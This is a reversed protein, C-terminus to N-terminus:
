NKSHCGELKPTDLTPISSTASSNAPSPSVPSSSDTSTSHTSPSHQIHHHTHNHNRSPLPLPPLLIEHYLCHLSTPLNPCVISTSWFLSSFKMQLLATKSHGYCYQVFLDKTVSGFSGPIDHTFRECKSIRVLYSEISISPVNRAHFCLTANPIALATAASTLISGSSETYSHSYPSHPLPHQQQLPQQHHQQQQHHSQKHPSPRAPASFTHRPGDNTSYSSPPPAATDAVTPMPFPYEDSQTEKTDITPSNSPAASTNPLTASKGPPPISSGPKSGISKENDNSLTIRTLLTALLHLLTATPFSAIDMTPGPAETSAPTTPLPPQQHQQELVLSSEERLASTKTYEDSQSSVRPVKRRAQQMDKDEEEEEKDQIEKEGLSERVVDNQAAAAATTEPPSSRAGDSHRRGLKRSGAAIVNVHEPSCPESSSTNPSEIDIALQNGDVDRLLIDDSDNSSSGYSEEIVQLLSASLDHRLLDESGSSGSSSGSCSDCSSSASSTPSAMNIVRMGGVAPGSSSHHPATALIGATQRHHQQQLVKGHSSGSHGLSVPQNRARPFTNLMPQIHIRTSPDVRGQQHRSMYGPISRSTSRSSEEGYKSLMMSKTEIWDMWGDM